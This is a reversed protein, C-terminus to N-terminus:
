YIAKAAHLEERTSNSPDNDFLVSTLGPGVEEMVKDIIIGHSDAVTLVLMLSVM